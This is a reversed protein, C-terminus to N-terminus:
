NVLLQEPPTGSALADKFWNPRKGLGSWTNGAADRYKAARVIKRKSVVKTNTKKASKAALRGRVFGLEVATIEYVSIAELIRNIVGSREKSRLEEAQAKLRTIEAEISELSKKSTRAM